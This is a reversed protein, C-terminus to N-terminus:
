VESVASPRTTRTRLWVVGILDWIGVAARQLNNYKSVGAIRPRHTVPRTIVRKGDYQFLAPLFRHMGDFFPLRLFDDRRFVKTPSSTDPCDDKLIRRRIGNAIRTAIRKSSEDRRALRVGIVVPWPEGAEEADALMLPLQTPDDQRDGDITAIWPSRAALVGTRLAASKGARPRHRVCRLRGGLGLRARAAVVREDTGDTSGDDVFIIEVDDGLSAFAAVIEDCAGDVNDAENLVPVILSLRTM